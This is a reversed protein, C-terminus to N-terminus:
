KNIEKKTKSDDDKTFADTFDRKSGITSYVLDELNDLRKRHSKFEGSFQKKLENIKKNLIKFM